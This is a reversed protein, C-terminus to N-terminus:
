LDRPTDNSFWQLLRRMARSVATRAAGATPFSFRVAIDDYGASDELRSEVLARDRTSLVALATRYDAISKLYREELTPESLDAGGLRNLVRRRLYTRITQKDRFQLAGLRALADMVTDQVVGAPDFGPRPPLRQAWRTLSPIQEEIGRWFDEDTWEPRVPPRSMRRLAAHRMFAELAGEEGITARIPALVDTVRQYRRTPDRELCRRLVQLLLPPTEPPLRTWEPQGRTVLTMTEGPDDAAFAARGTLMEYVVCGFAWVDSCCDAAAGLVQEPSM